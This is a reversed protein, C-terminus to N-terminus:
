FSIFVGVWGLFELNVDYICGDSTSQVNPKSLLTACAPIKIIRLASAM